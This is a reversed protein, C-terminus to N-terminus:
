TGLDKSYMPFEGSPSTQGRQEDSIRLLYVVFDSNSKDSFGLSNKKIIWEDYVQAQLGIRKIAIGLKPRGRKPPRDSTSTAMNKEYLFGCGPRFTHCIFVLHLIGIRIRVM